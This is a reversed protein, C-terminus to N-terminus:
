SSTILGPGVIFDVYDISVFIARWDERLFFFLGPGDAIDERFNNSTLLPMSSDIAVNIICRQYSSAGPIELLCEIKIIFESTLSSNSHFTKKYLEWSSYRATKEGDYKVTITITPPSFQKHISIQDMLRGYLTDIDASKIIVNGNFAESMSETKGTVAHYISQLTTKSLSALEVNENNQFSNENNSM